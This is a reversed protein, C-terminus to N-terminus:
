QKNREIRKIILCLRKYNEFFMIKKWKSYYHNIPTLIYNVEIRYYIQNSFYNWKGNEQFICIAHGHEGDKADWYIAVKYNKYGIDKLIKSVLIAFDECDGGKDKVTEKPLKIENNIDHQYTFGEKFFWDEIDQPTKITKPYLVKKPSVLVGSAFCYSNMFLFILLITVFKIAMGNNKNVNRM